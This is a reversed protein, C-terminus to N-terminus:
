NRNMCLKADDERITTCAIAPITYINLHNSRPAITRHVCFIITLLLIKSTGLYCYYPMSQRPKEHKLEFNDSPRLIESYQNRVVYTCLTAPPIKLFTTYM